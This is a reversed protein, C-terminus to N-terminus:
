PKRPFLPPARQPEVGGTEAGGISMLMQMRASADPMFPYVWGAVLRLCWVMDNLFSKLAAPDKAALARPKVAEIGRNLEEVAGHVRDLAPGFALAEIDAAIDADIARLRAFTKASAEEPKAPLRSDLHEGALEIVRSFLGGLGVALESDYRRALAAASFHGDLGFPTERFLFYRLTDAGYEKIAEAPSVAGGRAGHKGGGEMTWRGHAYVRAPLPLGLSMLAAPWTVAHLRFAEEGVLQADPPWASLFDRTGGGANWGAGALYGLLAGFRSHITHDPDSPVPVGLAPARRSVPIDRLGAGVLGAIAGARGAPALFGPNAAYHELLAKGYKSLRFLYVGGEAPEPKKKHVPCLGGEALEGERFFDDCLPCYAGEYRGPYIDGSELMRGFADRVGREIDPDTTRVFRDYNVGLLKWAREFDASIEEAWEGPRSGRGAATRAADEGHGDAGTQFFVETGRARIHRALVDAALATYAHGIHPRSDARYLPTTIFFKKGTEPM